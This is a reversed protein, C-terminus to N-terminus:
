SAVPASASVLRGPQESARQFVLRDEHFAAVSPRHAISVLTAEPLREKLVRYLEAEGEPDLSATAEDLFVWDPKALLARVLAIRQQEGGSLRQPWNEDRDLLDVLHPLGADRLAQAIEATEHSDPANPYCVVYKLSGLPIYPRQPLFFSNPPVEVRGHGHPWIGAMVRFLTSKGSGSAGSVVVSHGPRIDLDANELLVTGNPLRMDVGRLHVGGDPSVAKEFGRHSEARAEVIAREFTSLREVVARWAALSQYADIVWSLASAVRSFADVTQFLQGMTVQGAFYRPAIIIIPFIAGAQDYGVTVMNLLKTRTMIAWWNGILASFRHSLTAREVPEGRLLAVGEANERLRVLAYRFDAEVKQQRFNLAALPRGVLHTCVTGAVAYILAVWFLYGPITIGFLTAAGSLGWLITLFSLLSVIRSLLGLTLTLTADCFDRIDEAIRQDPNDTGVTVRDQALGIRYYARDSMWDSLYQETMWRRWRIQLWQNLYVQYIAITIFLFALPTFGFTLGHETRKYFLLLSVFTDWDKNQLANYFDARWFNFLVTLGVSILSLVIVSVLLIRASWREESTLFYPKSLRWADKLFTGLGEM